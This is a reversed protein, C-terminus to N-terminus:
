FKFVNDWETSARYKLFTWTLRRAVTVAIRKWFLAAIETHNELFSELQVGDIRLLVVRSNAHIDSLHRQKLMWAIEGYVEDELADVKKYFAVGKFNLEKNLTVEGSLILYLDPGSLDAESFILTDEGVRPEYVARTTFGAIEELAAPDIGAFLQTKALLHVLNM